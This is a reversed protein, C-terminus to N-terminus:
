ESAEKLIIAVIKDSLWYGNERIAELSPKVTDLLGARKAEVLIRGTGVVQMGYVDRAVRRGRSEDMLLLCPHHRKALESARAEGLALLSVLLPDPAHPLAETEIWTARQLADLGTSKTGGQRWESAVEEPVRFAGFLDRLLGLRDIGGLAILPGSNCVVM